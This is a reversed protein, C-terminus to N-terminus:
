AHTAEPAPVAASADLISDSRSNRMRSIAMLQFLALELYLAPVSWWVFKSYVILQWLVALFATVAAICAIITHVLSWEKAFARFIFVSAVAIRVIDLVLRLYFGASMRSGGRTPYAIYFWVLAIADVVIAATFVHIPWKAPRAAKFRKYIEVYIAFLLGMLLFAYRVVEDLAPCYRYFSIDCSFSGMRSALLVLTIFNYAALGIAAAAKVGRQEQIPKRGEYRVASYLFQALFLIFNVAGFGASRLARDM